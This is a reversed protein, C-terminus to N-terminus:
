RGGGDGVYQFVVADRSEISVSFLPSERLADEIEQLSGAPMPGVSDTAIKQGRTIVIYSATYTEDSTWRALTGVPDALLRDRADPPEGSISVYRFREYNTPNHPYNTNGEVLLSGAPAHAYLQEVVGIEEPTFYTQRDNGYYAVFFIPTLVATVAAVAVAERRLRRRNATPRPAVAAAGLLCLFPSSFLVVRFLTEGGFATVALLLVPAGALLVATLDVARHRALRLIGVCAVLGGLVVLGRGAWSVAVSAGRINGSKELNAGVTETPIVLLESLSSLTYGRAITLAWAATIVCMMMPLYWGRLRRFVVLVALMLVTMLPTLQHNWAIGAMLFACVVVSAASSSRGPRPLGRGFQRLVVGILVLYLFFALAQPAFYDQGVWNVVSFLWVALWLRRRDAVLAGFVFRLALVNALVIAVPAWNAIGLVDAQGALEQLVASGAFFGPWNHYVPLADIGTDVGGHRVVYDVIGVHKWAWPLRVTGYAIAPGVHLVGIFAAAYLALLWERVPRSLAHAFGITLLALGSVVSPTLVSVLGFGTMARPDVQLWGGVGLTVGLCAVGAAALESRGDMARARLAVIM